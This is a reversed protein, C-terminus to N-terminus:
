APPIWGVESSRRGPLSSARRALKCCNMVSHLVKLLRAYPAHDPRITQGAVTSFRKPEHLCARVNARRALSMPAIFADNASWGPPPTM